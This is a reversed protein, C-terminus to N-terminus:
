FPTLRRVEQCRFFRRRQSSPVDRRAARSRLARRTRLHIDNRSGCLELLVPEQVGQLLPQLVHNSLPVLGTAGVRGAETFVWKPGSYASFRRRIPSDGQVPTELMVRLGWAGM